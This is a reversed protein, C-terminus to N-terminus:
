ELPKSLKISVIELKELEPKGNEVKWKRMAVACSRAEAHRELQTPSQKGEMERVEVWLDVLRAALPDEARLVFIPEDDAAEKYCNFKESPNEKTGM